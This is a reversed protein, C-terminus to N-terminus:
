DRMIASVIASGKHGKLNLEFVFKVELILVEYNAPTEKEDAKGAHCLQLRKKWIWFEGLVPGSNSGSGRPSQPLATIYPIQLKKKRLSSWSDVHFTEM